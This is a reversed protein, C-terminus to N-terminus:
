LKHMGHKVFIGVPSAIQPYSTFHNHSYHALANFQISPHFFQPYYIILTSLISPLSLFQLFKLTIKSSNEM